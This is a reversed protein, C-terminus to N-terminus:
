TAQDDEDVEERLIELARKLETHVRSKSIGLTAAIERLTEGEWFTAHVINQQRPTLRDVARRLQFLGVADEPNSGNPLAAPNTVSTPRRLVGDVQESVRWRIIRKVWTRARGGKAADFTVAAELVALRGASLLDDVPVGTRHAAARAAGRVDDDYELLLERAERETLTAYNIKDWARM